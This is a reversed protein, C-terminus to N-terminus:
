ELFPDFFKAPLLILQEFTWAPNDHAFKGGTNLVLNKLCSNCGRISSAFIGGTYGRGMAWNFANVEAHAFTSGTERIIAPDTLKETFEVLIEGSNRVLNTRLWQLARVSNTSIVRTPSLFPHILDTVAITVGSRVGTSEAFEVGLQTARELRSVGYVGGGISIGQEAFGLETIFRAPTASSVLVATGFNALAARAGSGVIAAATTAVLVGQNRTVGANFGNVVTPDVSSSWM